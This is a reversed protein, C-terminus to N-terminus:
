CDGIQRNPDILLEFNVTDVEVELTLSRHPPCAVVQCVVLVLIVHNIAVDALIAEVSLCVKHEIVRHNVIDEGGAAHVVLM